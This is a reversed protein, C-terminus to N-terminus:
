RGCLGTNGYHFVRAGAPGDYEGSGAISRGQRSAVLTSAGLRALGVCELHCRFPGLHTRLRGRAQEVAGLCQVLQDFTGAPLSEKGLHLDGVPWGEGIAAEHHVGIVARQKGLFLDLPLEIKQRAPLPVLVVEIGFGVGLDPAIRQHIQASPIRLLLDFPDDVISALAVNVDHRAHFKEPM